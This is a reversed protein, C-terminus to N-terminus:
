PSESGSADGPGATVRVPIELQRGKRLVTFRVTEGPQVGFVARGAQENNLVSRGDIKLIFDGLEIGGREAPSGADLSQVLLGRNTSLGLQQAVQPPIPTLSIGIWVPRPQGYKIIDRAVQVATNVPIAFGIGISGGSPTLIFTNIGVVQGLANVLAGGSNGPNIAADTQIMDKYIGQEQGDGKVDRHLASIVGVTVTPQRDEYSFGFPNGIAIAWEGVVLDGSDGVEVTPLNGGDVKIVALDYASNYGVIRAPLNRGDPLTIKLETADEVVHANTLIIGTPDVIVGSGISYFPEPSVIPPLYRGWFPDVSRPRAILRVQTVGVTVVAPAAKQAARVIANRRGAELENAALLPANGSEAPEAGSGGSGQDGGPDGGGAPASEGAPTESRTTVPRGAAPGRGTNGTLVVVLVGALGGCLFLLFFLVTAPLRITGRRSSDNQYM